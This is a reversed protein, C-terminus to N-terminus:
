ISSAATNLLNQEVSVLMSLPGRGRGSSSFWNSVLPPREDVDMAQNEKTLAEPALLGYDRALCFLPNEESPGHIEAAGVELVDAGASFCISRSM